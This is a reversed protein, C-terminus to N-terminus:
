TYLPCTSGNPDPYAGMSPAQRFRSDRVASAGRWLAGSRIRLTDFAPMAAHSWQLCSISGPVSANSSGPLTGLCAAQWCSITSRLASPRHKLHPSSNFNLDLPYQSKHGYRNDSQSQEFLTAQCMSAPYINAPIWLKLCPLHSSILWGRHSTDVMTYLERARM